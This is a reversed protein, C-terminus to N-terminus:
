AWARARNIFKTKAQVNRPLLSSDYALGNSATQGYKKGSSTMPRRSDLRSSNKLFIKIKQLCLNLLPM